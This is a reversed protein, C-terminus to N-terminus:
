VANTQKELLQTVTQHLIPHMWDAAISALPELVFRREHMRPHPVQLGDQNWIGGSWLLIDLDLTRSIPGDLGRVRGHAQELADLREWLATPDWESELVVVGNLFRDSSEFGVPDTEMWSSVAVVNGMEGLGAVARELYDLRPELNSGLGIAYTWNARM